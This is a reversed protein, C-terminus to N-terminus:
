QRLRVYRKETM